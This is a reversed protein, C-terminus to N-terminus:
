SRGGRRPPAPRASNARRRRIAIAEPRTSTISGTPLSELLRGAVIALPRAHEGLAFAGAIQWLGEWRADAAASGDDLRDLVAALEEGFRRREILSGERALAQAIARVAPEWRPDEADHLHLSRPRKHWIRSPPVGLARAVRVKTARRPNATAGSELTSWTARSVGALRCAQAKSLGAEARLREILNAPRDMDLNM